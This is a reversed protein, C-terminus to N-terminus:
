NQAVVVPTNPIVLVPIEVGSMVDKTVQGFHQWLGRRHHPRMVVLDAARAAALIEEAPDGEKTEPVENQFSEEAAHIKRATQDYVTQYAKYDLFPSIEPRVYLLHAHVDGTQTLRGVWQAVPLVESSLDVPVLWEQPMLARTGRHVWVPCSALLAVRKSHSGLLSESIGSKGLSGVMLLPGQYSEAVAVLTEAVRGLKVVWEISLERSVRNLVARYFRRLEKQLQGKEEERTMGGYYMLEGTGVSMWDQSAHILVLPLKWQRALMAAQKVVIRSYDSFDVGVVITSFISEM